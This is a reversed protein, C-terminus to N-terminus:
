RKKRPLYVRGGFRMEYGSYTNIYVPHVTFNGDGKRYEVVAMGQQWNESVPVPRGQLDLASKVSPVSGDIRCLCGPTMALRTRGGQRTRETLYQVEIRHVHGFITSAGDSKVVAAATSNGSRVLLGHICRLRDNLWIEGAPYGAVYEADFEDFCCLYPVSMVPWGTTDASRRLGWAAMNTERIRKDARADHNGELVKIKSNPASQRLQAMFEYGRDIGLQTTRAFGPEQTYKGFEAFDQFDGLCVAVDPDIDATLQMAVDIASEDHFPDLGGEPLSRFGIQPDPLIVAVLDQAHPPRPTGPPIVTIKSAPRDVLPWKPAEESVTLELKIGHLRTVLPEGDNGRMVSDWSSLRLGAVRDPSVGSEVLIEDLRRHLRAREDADFTERSEGAGQRYEPAYRALKYKRRWRRVNAEDIHLYEAVEVNSCMPDAMMSRGRDDTNSVADATKTM